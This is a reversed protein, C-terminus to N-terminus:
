FGEYAELAVRVSGWANIRFPDVNTGRNWPRDWLLGTGGPNADSWTTVNGLNDDVFVDAAIDAKYETFHVRSGLDTGFHRELWERRDYDWTQSQRRTTTAFSVHYVSDLELVAEVAGPIPLIWDACGPADLESEVQKKEAGSLDLAKAIDWDTIDEPSYIRGTEQRALWLYSLHYNAVIGDVDLLL